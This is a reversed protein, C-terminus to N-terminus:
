DKVEKIQINRKLFYETVYKLLVKFGTFQQKLAPPLIGSDYQLYWLTTEPNMIAHLRNGGTFLKTDVLGTSGKAAKGDIVELILIRDSSRM